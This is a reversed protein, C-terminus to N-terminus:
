CIDRYKAINVFTIIILQMYKFLCCDKVLFFPHCLGHEVM